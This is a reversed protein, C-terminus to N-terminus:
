LSSQAITRTVTYIETSKNFTKDSLVPHFFLNTHTTLKSHIHEKTILRSM